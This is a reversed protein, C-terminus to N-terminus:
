AEEYELDATRNWKFYNEEYFSQNDYKAECKPCVFSDLSMMKAEFDSYEGYKPTWGCDPCSLRRRMYYPLKRM